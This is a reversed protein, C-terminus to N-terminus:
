HSLGEQAVCQTLIQAIHGAADPKSLARMTQSIKERQEPNKLLDGIVETLGPTLHGQLLLICGGNEQATIANLFQHNNALGEIPVLITAINNAALEAIAGAGARSVAIDAAAYLHPLEAHVFEAQWYGDRQITTKKGRGTLHIIDVQSLLADINKEIADNLAQAGQSGGIVLLIPRTGSLKTISLGEARSGHTVDPRVPNGTVIYPRGAPTGRRGIPFGLCIHTAWRAILRNARGMVADSEHLIIPIKKRHAVFCLPISVIGGKSFIADPEFTDIIARATRFSQLLLLPHRLPHRPLPLAQFRVDAKKLFAADDETESCVFLSEAKADLTHVAREVAVLPALHGGSGGSVYLLRM